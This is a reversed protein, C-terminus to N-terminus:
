GPAPGSSGTPAGPSTRPREVHPGFEHAVRGVAAQVAADNRRHQVGHAAQGQHHGNRAGRARFVGLLDHVAKRAHAGDVQAHVEQALAQALVEDAVASTV